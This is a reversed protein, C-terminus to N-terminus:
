MQHVHWHQQNFSEQISESLDRILRSPSHQELNAQEEPEIRARVAVKLCVAATPSDSSIGLNIIEALESKNVWILAPM